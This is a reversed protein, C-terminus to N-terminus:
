LRLEFVNQEREKDKDNKRHRLLLEAFKEHRREADHCVHLHQVEEPVDARDSNRHDRDKHEQRNEDLVEPATKKARVACEHTKDRNQTRHLNPAVLLRTDVAAFTIFGARRM